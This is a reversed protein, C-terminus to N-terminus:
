CHVNKLSFKGFIGLALVVQYVLIIYKLEPTHKARTNDKM